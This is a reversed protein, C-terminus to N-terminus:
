DLQLYNTVESCKCLWRRQVGEMRDLVTNTVGSMRRVEENRIMDMWPIRRIRRLNRMEFELLKTKLKKTLVWSEASYLAFPEIMTEYLKIKM